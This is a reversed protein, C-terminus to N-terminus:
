SRTVARVFAFEVVESGDPFLTTVAVENPRRTPGQVVRAEMAEAHKWANAVCSEVFLDLENLAGNFRRTQKIVREGANGSDPFRRTVVEFRAM